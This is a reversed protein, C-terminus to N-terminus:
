KYPLCLQKTYIQSFPSFVQHFNSLFMSKRKKSKDALSAKFRKVGGPLGVDNASYSSFFIVLPFDQILYIRTM